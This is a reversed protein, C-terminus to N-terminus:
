DETQREGEPPVAVFDYSTIDDEPAELDTSETEDDDYVEGDDMTELTTYYGGSLEAKIQNMEHVASEILFIGEEQDISIGRADLTTTIYKVAEMFKDYGDFHEYMQEVATVAVLAVERKVKTDCVNHIAKRISLGVGSIIAGLILMIVETAESVILEKITDM